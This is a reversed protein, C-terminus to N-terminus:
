WARATMAGPAAPGATPTGAAQRQREAWNLAANGARSGGYGSAVAFHSVSAQAAPAAAAAAAPALLASVLVAAAAFKRSRMAAVAMSFM